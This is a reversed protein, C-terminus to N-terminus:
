PHRNNKFAKNIILSRGLRRCSIKSLPKLCSLGAECVCFVTSDILSCVCIAGKCASMASSCIEYLDAQSDGAFPCITQTPQKMALQKGVNYTATVTDAGSLAHMVLIAKPTDKNKQVTAGLDVISRNAVPSSIHLVHRTCTHYVYLHPLLILM